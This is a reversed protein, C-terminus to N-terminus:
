AGGGRKSAPAKEVVRGADLWVGEAKMSRLLAQRAWESPLTNHRGALLKLAAGFNRPVRLRLKDPFSGAPTAATPQHM